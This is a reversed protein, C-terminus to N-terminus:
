TLPGFVSEIKRKLTSITFPKVLYNNVGLAIAQKVQEADGNSTLMIFATNALNPEARVARLLALGDMIPMNLDSVVLHVPKARLSQLAEHGDGCEFVRACGIQKLSDRVLTRTARQDDVVMIEVSAAQPM